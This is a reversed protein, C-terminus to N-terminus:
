ETRQSVPSGFLQQAPIVQLIREWFANALARNGDPRTHLGDIDIYTARNALFVDFTDVLHGGTAPVIGRIRENTEAIVDNDTFRGRCNPPPTGCNEPAVPLITSVFVYQVGREKATRISDRIAFMVDVPDEGGNLDNIGELLLVVEAHTATIRDRLRFGNDVAREGGRGSNDVTIPQDPVREWFMRQLLTPYANALDIFPLLGFLRGNEGETISDGFALYRTVAFQRHRLTVGFSCSAQRGLGDVATCTVITEGLPFPEGPAPTCAVSVPQAGGSTTPAPYAVAEATSVLGDLLIPGPCSIHAAAPPPPPATPGHDGCAGIVAIATALAAIHVPRTVLRSPLGRRALEQGHM